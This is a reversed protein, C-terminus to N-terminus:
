SSPAERESRELVRELAERSADDIEPHLHPGPGESTASAPVEPAGTGERVVRYLAGAALALAVLVLM